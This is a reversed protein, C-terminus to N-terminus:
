QISLLTFLKRREKVQFLIKVDSVDSKPPLAIELVCLIDDEDEEPSSYFSATM